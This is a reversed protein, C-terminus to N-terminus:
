GVPVIHAGRVGGEYVAKDLKSVSRVISRWTMARTVVRSPAPTATASRTEIAPEAWELARYELQDSHAADVLPFHNAAYDFSRLMGAVDRLPSHMARRVALSKSPEGEFDIIAWGTLTRLTQGLQLDGHIRQIPVGGTSRDARGFASRIQPLLEGISPVHAGVAEASPCWRGSSTPWRIPM